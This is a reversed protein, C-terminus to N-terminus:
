LSNRLIAGFQASSAFQARPAQAVSRVLTRARRHRPPPPPHLPRRGRHRRLDQYRAARAARAGLLDPHGRRARSRRGSGNPTTPARTCSTTCRCTSWRGARLARLHDVLLSTELSDPHDFNTRAREDLLQRLDRYYSDHFHAGFEGPRRAADGGDDQGLGHRGRDRRLDAPRGGGRGRRRCLGRRRRVEGAARKFAVRRRQGELVSNTASDTPTSKLRSELLTTSASRARVRARPVRRRESSSAGCRRLDNKM